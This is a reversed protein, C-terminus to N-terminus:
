RISHGSDTTGLCETLFSGVEDLAQAALKLKGVGSPFVHLMSEWVGVKADVGAAVAREVYRLSDDLLMEDTGVHVRVPPLGHLDGYLASVMPDKPDTEGLYAQVFEVVQPRTFYAEAEARTEWSAGTLALDTTPSLAVAGSSILAGSESRATTLSLLVLALGGGASDGVIAIRQIGRDLLGRYCAQADLVAAPFPHEPALRYDAVFTDVGARAAIQGVLHRYASASGLSYWGGHLYLIGVGAPAQSPRCWWGSVGNITDQEYTVGDAPPVTMMVTDFPARAVPGRLEGKHSRMATGIANVTAQDEPSIPHTQM